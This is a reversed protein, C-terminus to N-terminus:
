ESTNKFIFTLTPKPSLTHSFRLVISYTFAIIMIETGKGYKLDINIKGEVTGAVILDPQFTYSIIGACTNAVM